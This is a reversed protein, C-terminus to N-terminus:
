RAAKNRWGPGEPFGNKWVGGNADLTGARLGQVEMKFRGARSAGRDLRVFFM